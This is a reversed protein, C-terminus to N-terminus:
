KTYTRVKSLVNWLIGETCPPTSLSGDYRYYGSAKDVWVSPDVAEKVGEDENVKGALRNFYPALKM